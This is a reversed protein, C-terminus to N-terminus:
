PFGYSEKKTRSDEMGKCVVFRKVWGRIDVTNPTSCKVRAAAMREGFLFL